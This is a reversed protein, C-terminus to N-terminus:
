RTERLTLSVRNRGGERTYRVNSSYHALLRLGLNGIPRVDFDIDLPQQADSLAATPDFPPSADEYLLAVGGAVVCLTVTVPADSDDAHGHVITNTVLEEVILVLRLTDDHGIGHRGCFDEVFAATEPVIGLRAPFDRTASRAVPLQDLTQPDSSM